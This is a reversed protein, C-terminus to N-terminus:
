IVVKRLTFFVYGAAMKQRVLDKIKEDNEPSWTITVDGTNNLFTLSNGFDETETAVNNEELM